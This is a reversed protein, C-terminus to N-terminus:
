GSTDETSLGLEKGLQKMADSAKKKDGDDMLGLATMAATPTQIVGGFTCPLGERKPGRAIKKDKLRISSDGGLGISVGYIARVLTKFKGIKVEIPEFLPVRNAM